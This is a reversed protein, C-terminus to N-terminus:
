LTTDTDLHLSRDKTDVQVYFARFASDNYSGEWEFVNLSPHSVGFATSVNKWQANIQLIPIAFLITILLKKM